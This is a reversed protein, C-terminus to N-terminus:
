GNNMRQKRKSVFMKRLEKVPVADAGIHDSDDKLRPYPKPMKTQKREAFAVINANIMALTDYIDALIANTKLRTNWRYLEPNTERMVASDIDINSLFSHLASWSLSHGVDKVNYGYRILDAEVAKYHGDVFGALSIIGGGICRKTGTHSRDM